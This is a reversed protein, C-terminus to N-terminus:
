VNRNIKGFSKTKKERFVSTLHDPSNHQLSFALDPCLEAFQVRVVASVDGFTPGFCFFM